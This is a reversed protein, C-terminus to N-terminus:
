IQEKLETITVLTPVSKGQFGASLKTLYNGRHVEGRSAFSEGRDVYQKTEVYVFPSTIM